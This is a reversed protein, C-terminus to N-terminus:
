LIFLGDVEMGAEDFIDFAEFLTAQQAFGVLREQFLVIRPRWVSLFHPLLRRSEVMKQCPLSLLCLSKVEDKLATALFEGRLGINGWVNRARLLFDGTSLVFEPFKFVIKYILLENVCVLIIKTINVRIATVRGENFVADIYILNLLGSM